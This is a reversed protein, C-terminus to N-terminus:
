KFLIDCYCLIFYLSYLKFKGDNNTELETSSKSHTSLSHIYIDQENNSNDMEELVTNTETTQCKLDELTVYILTGDKGPISVDDLIDNIYIIKKSSYQGRSDILENTSVDQSAEIISDSVEYGLHPLKLDITTSNSQEQQVEEHLNIRSEKPSTSTNFDNCEDPNLRHLLLSPFATTNLSRSEAHKYDQARFHKTCIFYRRRILDLSISNLVPYNIITRWRECRENDMPFKHVLNNRTGKCSDMMCHRLNRDSSRKM